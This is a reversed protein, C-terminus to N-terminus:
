PNLWVPHEVLHIQSGDKASQEWMMLAGMQPTDVEYPIGFQFSGYNPPGDGSATTFGSALELGDNDYLAYQVTGEFVLAMGDVLLPSTTEAWWAPQDILIEGLVGQNEIFTDRTLSPTVDFGHGGFYQIQDGEIMLVVEEVTPFQTLTFVLQSLNALEGYTGTPEDFEASMDVRAVGDAITLGLLETGTPLGGYIPPTGAQEDPTPGAILANVAASAVATTSEIERTVPGLFGDVLFYARVEMTDSPILTTTTTPDPPLTTTTTTTSTTTPPTTTSATSDGDGCAAAVLALALLLTGAAKM